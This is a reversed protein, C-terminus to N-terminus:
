QPDFYATGRFDSIEWTGEFLHRGQDQRRLSYKVPSCPSDPGTTITLEVGNYTGVFQAPKGNCRGSWVILTGRVSTGDVSQVIVEHTNSFRGDDTQWRGAMKPPLGRGAQAPPMTVAAANADSAKEQGFCPFSVLMAVGLVTLPPRIRVLQLKM